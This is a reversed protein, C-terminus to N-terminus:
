SAATEAAARASRARKQEAQYLPREHAISAVVSPRELHRAFYASVNPYATLDIPTAQAWHLTTVLYADAVSFDDGLLFPRTGLKSSLHSLRLPAKQAAYAKVSADAMSDFFPAFVVKHIETSIFGLWEQLRARQSATSSLRGSAEAVYSLVAVNETLVTGDDTVLAPVLGLPHVQLYDDGDPRTRKDVPCVEVYEADLGADTLAIRTAMSCAFPSFYLKM